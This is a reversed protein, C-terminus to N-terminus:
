HVILLQASSSNASILISLPCFSAYAVTDAKEQLTLEADLDWEGNSVHRLHHVINSFGSIWNLDHKLAPLEGTFMLSHSAIRPLAIQEGSPLLSPDSSPILVWEDVPVTRYLYAIAALCQADISPLSFAPGWIHLELVM